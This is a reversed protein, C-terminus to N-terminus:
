AFVPLAPQSESGVGTESLSWFVGNVEMLVCAMVRIAGADDEHGGQEKQSMGGMSRLRCRLRIRRSLRCDLQAGREAIFM